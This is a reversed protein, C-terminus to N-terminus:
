STPRERSTGHSGDEAAAARASHEAVVQDWIQEDAEYPPYFSFRDILGDFRSSIARALQTPEAVVAFADLVEDEILEGMQNWKDAQTGRSIETLEVGLDAWGHLELVPRYSPTSGYFAIQKRTQRIATAMAEETSGTAVLGPLSVQLDARARLSKVLGRELAPLTRERLYRPTTFAHALLGEAIEGAVETMHEGVAAVHVEPPGHASPAPTFFPPMLTHSYFEGHFALDTGENWCRWIARLAAIFEHMRRAPHSWPMAFRREIHPKVQTGLGLMFRGGTYCQLDHATYAVAMPSRAFAVAIATGLQLTTTHEGAVLLPLFPDHTSESSWIGAYGASEYRVAADRLATYGNATLKGDIRM